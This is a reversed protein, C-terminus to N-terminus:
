EAKSKAEKKVRAEKILYARLAIGVQSVFIAILLYCMLPGLLWYVSSALIPGTARGLQGKSRFGGLARGRKLRDDSVAQEETSGTKTDDEDCCAAAAATLGTVVTASVYALCTAASYLVITSITPSATINPVALAALLFFAISSTFLGTSAVNLEGKKALAPRVYRGQLMAALIGIDATLHTVPFLAHWSVLCSVAMRPM